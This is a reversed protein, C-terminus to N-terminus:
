LWSEKHVCLVLEKLLYLVSIKVVNQSINNWKLYHKIKCATTFCLIM